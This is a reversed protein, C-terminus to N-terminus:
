LIARNRSSWDGLMEKMKTRYDTLYKSLQTENQNPNYVLNTANSTGEIDAVIDIIEGTRNNKIWVRPTPKGNIIVTGAVPSVDMETEVRIIVSAFLPAVIRLSSSLKQHSFPKGIAWNKWNGIVFAEIEEILTVTSANSSISENIGMNSMAEKAKAVLGDFGDYAKMILAEDDTEAAITAYEMFESLDGNIVKRLIDPEAAAFEYVLGTLEAIQHDNLSEETDDTLPIYQEFSPDSNLWKALATVSGATGDMVKHEVITYLNLETATVSYVLIVKGHVLHFHWFGKLKGNKFPTDKASVPDTSTKKKEIFDDISKAIGPFGRMYAARDKVFRDTMYVNRETVSESIIDIYRM